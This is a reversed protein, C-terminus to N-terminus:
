EFVLIGYDEPQAMIPVTFDATSRKAQQKRRCNFRWRDGKQISTVGLTKLPIRAELSWYGEGTKTKVDYTGNWEKDQNLSYDTPFTIKADFSTGLPNFYIQYIIAEEEDPCLFFGVCDDAFVASDKGKATALITSTDEQTSHTAVYLNEDDWGFYFRTPEIVCAGGDYAGWTSIAYSEPYESATVEGDLVPTKTLRASRALRALTIPKEIKHIRDEKWTIDLKYKPVPFLNGDHLAPFEEILTKGPEIRLEREAPAIKWGPTEEWRVTTTIAHDLPNEIKLPIQLAFPGPESPIEPAKIKVYMTDLQYLFNTDEFSIIDPAIVSDKKMVVWSLKGDKVKASIYHFFSGEEEVVRGIVGGSSGVLTYHIGDFNDTAFKHWHGCFVADVGYKKFLDHLRDPKGEVLTKSFLPKHFFVVTLPANRNKRLDNELWKVQKDSLEDNSEWRGTDLVVFHVKEFNFSYYPPKGIRKRWVKEMVDNLIDHNGPILYVPMKLAELIGFYEDWQSNLLAEDETYGEIQDGVTIVMDPDLLAVENVISEYVGPQAGGTRDGLIVFTFDGAGAIFPMLFAVLFIASVVPKNFGIM